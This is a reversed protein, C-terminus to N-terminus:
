GLQSCPISNGTERAAEMDNISNLEFRGTQAYKM